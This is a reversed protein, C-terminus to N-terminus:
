CRITGLKARGAKNLHQGRLHLACLWHDRTSYRLSGILPALSSWIRELGEGDSLGWDFNLRPNYQLQCVWVHVFAHFVSTRFM